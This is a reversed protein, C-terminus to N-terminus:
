VKEALDGIVPLKFLEGQLAKVATVLWLIVWGLPVVIVALWSLLQGGHPILGLVYFVLRLAFGVVITALTLFISQWAHFRVFHNSKFPKMALFVVAPIITLYALAGALNESLPGTRGVAAPAAIMRRGCRPCFAAADPMEAQCQPCSISM